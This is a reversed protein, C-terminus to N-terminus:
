HCLLDYKRKQCINIGSLSDEFVLFEDSAYRFLKKISNYPEPHPKNNVVDDRTIIHKFVNNLKIGALVIDTEARSASTVLGMALGYGAFYNIINYVHDMAALEHQKLCQLMLEEKKTKLEAPSIKLNFEKIFRACNNDMSVGKYTRLYEEYDITHGYDALIINWCEFHYPESDILTGDLDFLIAKFRNLM